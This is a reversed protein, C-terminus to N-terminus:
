GVGGPTVALLQADRQIAIRTAVGDAHLKQFEQAFRPDTLAAHIGQMWPSRELAALCVEAGEAGLQIILVDIALELAMITRLRETRSPRKLAAALVYSLFLEASSDACATETGGYPDTVAQQLAARAPSLAPRPIM